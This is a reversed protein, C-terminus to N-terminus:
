FTLQLNLVFTRDNFYVNRREIGPSLLSSDRFPNRNFSGNDVPGPDIMTPEPTVGTYNTITFLNQATIGLRFAQIFKLKDLDFTYSLTANDLTLFDANEVYLSSYQSVTLDEDAKETNLRNYSNIAGPDIPEYFMRYLNAKSHGFIGRFFIDLNWNGFQWQQTWGLELGPFGNGLDAFDADEALASGPDTILQGDNNLDKFLPYGFEDAGGGAYVPGWFRGIKEGETLRVLETSGQGPAGPSAILQDEVPYEDLLTRYSNLVLYNSWSFKGFTANEYGLALEIGRSSIGGSNQYSIRVEAERDLEEVILDELSRSYIDLLARLKGRKFDIGLNIEKNKEHTLNPNGAWLQDFVAIDTNYVFRNQSLGYKVPLGGSIGYGLRVNLQDVQALELFGLVDVAASLSPFLGWQNEKSLKSSGEYRLGANFTFNKVIVNTNGYFATIKNIPSSTSTIIHRSPFVPFGMLEGSYQIERFPSDNGPFNGAELYFEEFEDSQYMYGATATLGIKESFENSYTLYSEFLQTKEDSTIKRSLGNRDLGRFFLTSPYFEENRFSTNQQGYNTTIRLEETINFDLRTNFNLVEQNNEISSQKLIAVPNFNDFYIAQYFNGNDFRVPATPNSLIAYRFAENFAPDSERDTFSVNITGKLRDNLAYQEIGARVNIQEFESTKLIGEVSRLNTAARYITNESGGSISLHHTQSFAQRTVEKQWDTESGLDNGGAAIFEDKNFVPIYRETNSIALHTSYEVNVGSDREGKKTTILIVGNSGRIGYFATTSADKLVTISAIDNPDVSELSAAILGDIIILPESNQELTSLGRIRLTSFENPNSGTKYVGLGPIKGRWLLGPENILGKNFQQSKLTVGAPVREKSLAAAMSVSLEAGEAISIDMSKYGPKYVWLKDVSEPLSLLFFGKKDSYVTSNRDPDTIKAGVIPNGTNEDQITGSITKWGQSYSFYSILLLCIFFCATRVMM